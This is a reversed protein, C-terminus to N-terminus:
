LRGQGPRPNRHGPHRRNPWIRIGERISTNTTPPVLGMGVAMMGALGRWAVGPGGPGDLGHGVPMSGRAQGRLARRSRLRLSWAISEPDAELNPHEELRMRLVAKFISCTPTDAVTTTANAARAARTSVPCAPSRCSKRAIWAAMSAPCTSSRLSMCAPCASSRLSICAPCASSRLSMCAPRASSRLSMCAPRASSRLSM